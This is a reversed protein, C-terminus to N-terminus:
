NANENTGAPAKGRILRTAEDMLAHAIIWDAWARESNKSLVPSSPPAGIKANDFGKMLEKEASNTQKLKYHSMALVMQSEVTQWISGSGRNAQSSGHIWEIANEYHGSRFEGWGKTEKLTSLFRSSNGNTVSVNVWNAITDTDVGSDPLILSDKAMRNAIYPDTTASFKDKEQRCIRRYANTDGVQIFLPALAHYNLHEDPNLEVLMTFNAVASKWLERSVNFQGLINLMSAARAPYLRMVAFPVADFQKQAEEAKGQLVLSEILAFTEGAEAQRRLKAEEAWANEADLRLRIQEQEAHKARIAQSASVVTGVILVTSFAAVAMFAGKNRQVAKQFHYIRSPARANVPERNLYRLVDLAFGNATEYRRRRDKELAKMVIWDLDGRVLHILKPSETHRRRATTTREADLMTSLRTSPKVPEQHRIIRRMEDLGAALLAEQDFPTKSTLLEYLLVGLSYVDSRTDIDLSTMIAQEPSMYAPTGIFQEFATFLTHDTLRGQTAKAIGFDIVKPIPLADNVTVLINSPKIDRHIVGKQHAHQIAQCVQIFLKLREETSLKQEDCFETIKVGRVLEM